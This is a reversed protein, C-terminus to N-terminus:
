RNPNPIKIGKKSGDEAIQDCVEKQQKLLTNITSLM